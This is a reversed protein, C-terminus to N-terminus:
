AWLLDVGIKGVVVLFVVQSLASLHSGGNFFRGKGNVNKESASSYGTAYDGERFGLGGQERSCIEPISSWRHAHWELGIFLEGYYQPSSTRAISSIYPV